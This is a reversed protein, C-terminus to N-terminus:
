EVEPEIYGSYAVLLGTLPHTVRVTARVGTKGAVAEERAVIRPGLWVPLPIVFPGLRTAFGTPKYVLAGDVEALRFWLEGSGATEKLLRAKGEAQETIFAKGAFTRHWTEGTSNATIVLKLPVASGADPLGMPRLLNNILPSGSREVTFVGGFCVTETGAHLLQVAPALRHWADGLLRQYLTSIMDWNSLIEYQCM